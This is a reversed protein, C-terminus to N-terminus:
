SSAPRSAANACRSRPLGVPMKTVDDVILGASAGGIRVTSSSEKPQRLMNTM